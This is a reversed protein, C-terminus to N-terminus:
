SGLKAMKLCNQFRHFEEGFPPRHQYQGSVGGDDGNDDDEGNDGNDDDEGNDGVSEDEGNDGVSEDKDYGLGLDMVNSVM